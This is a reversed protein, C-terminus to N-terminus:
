GYARHFTRPALIGAAPRCRGTGRSDESIHRIGPKKQQNDVMATTARLGPRQRPLKGLSALRLAGLALHTDGVELDLRRVDRRGNIGADGLTRALDVHLREEEQGPPMRLFIKGADGLLRARPVGPARNM